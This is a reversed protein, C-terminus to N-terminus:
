LRLRIAVALDQFQPPAPVGVLLDCFDKAHIRVSHEAHYAIYLPSNGVDKSPEDVLRSSPSATARGLAVQSGGHSDATASPREDSRRGGAWGSVFSHRGAWFHKRM